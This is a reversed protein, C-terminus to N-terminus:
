KTFRNKNRSNKHVAQLYNEKVIKWSQPLWSTTKNESILKEAERVDYFKGSSAEAPDLTIEADSVIKYVNIILHDPAKDLVFKGLFVPVQCLGTEEQLEAIAAQKYTQGYQVHFSCACDVHDPFITKEKSRMTLFVQQKSNFVFVVGGRHLLGEKHAKKREICGIVQDNLDIHYLYEIDEQM